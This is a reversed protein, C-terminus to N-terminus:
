YITQKKFENWITVLQNVKLIQLLHQKMKDKTYVQM